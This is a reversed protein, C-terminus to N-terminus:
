ENLDRRSFYLVSASFYLNFYTNTKSNILVNIIFKEEPYWRSVLALLMIITVDTVQTHKCLCESYFPISVLAYAYMCETSCVKPILVITAILFQWHSGNVISTKINSVNVNTRQHLSSPVSEYGSELTIQSKFVM